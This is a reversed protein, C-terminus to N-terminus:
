LLSPSRAQDFLALGDVPDPATTPRLPAKVALAALQAAREANHPAIPQFRRRM